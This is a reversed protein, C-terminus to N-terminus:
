SVVFTCLSVLTIVNVSVFLGGSHTDCPVKCFPCRATSPAGVRLPPPPKHGDVLKISSLFSDRGGQRCKQLVLYSFQCIFFSFQRKQPLFLVSPLVGAVPLICPHANYINKLFISIIPPDREMLYQVSNTM